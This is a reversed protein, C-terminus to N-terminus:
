SSTGRGLGWGEEEEIEGIRWRALQVKAQNPRWGDASPLLFPPVRAWPKAESGAAGAGQRRRGGARGRAPAALVVAPWAHRGWEQQM